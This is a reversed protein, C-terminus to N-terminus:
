TLGLSKPNFGNDTLLKIADSKRSKVDSIKKQIDEITTFLNDKKVDWRNVTEWTVVGFLKYMLLMSVANAATMKSADARIMQNTKTPQFVHYSQNLELDFEKMVQEQDWKRGSCKEYISKLDVKTNPKM